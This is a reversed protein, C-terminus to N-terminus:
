GPDFVDQGDRAKVVAARLLEKCNRRIKINRHGHRVTVGIELPIRIKFFHEFESSFTVIDGTLYYRFREARRRHVEHM